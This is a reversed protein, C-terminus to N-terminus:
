GVTRVSLTVAIYQIIYCWSVTLAGHTSGRFLLKYNKLRGVKICVYIFYVQDPDNLDPYDRAQM